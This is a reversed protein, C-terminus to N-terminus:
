APTTAEDHKTNTHKAAAVPTPDFTNVLDSFRAVQHRTMYDRIGALLKDWIFPDIFNATGVQVADAGVITFELVDAATMIGGMGLIPIKVARRCEYVM